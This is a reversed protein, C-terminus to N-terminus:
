IFLDWGLSKALDNQAKEVSGYACEMKSLLYKCLDRLEDCSCENISSRFEETREFFANSAFIRNEEEQKITIM